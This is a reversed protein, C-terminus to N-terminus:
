GDETVWRYVTDLDKVKVGLHGFYRNLNMLDRRLFSSAMSHELPVAQSIDFIVPRGRLIMVNYESLDGHVLRAKKYLIKVYDLLKEYIKEANSPIKEKMTPANKGKQGIFEMVLVNKEVLIPEPVRVGADYATKLNKFERKAWVYTISKSDNKVNRFRHDGEIYIIKGRRFEASITLYIKIAIERENEGIGWYVRAEKGSSIVGHITKIKGTKMLNYLVMLTTRDFVGEMVARDATRDKILIRDRKEVVGLTHELRDGIKTREDEEEETM